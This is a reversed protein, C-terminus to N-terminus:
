FEVGGGWLSNWSTAPKLQKQPKLSDAMVEDVIDGEATAIFEVNEKLCLTSAKWKMAKFEPAM